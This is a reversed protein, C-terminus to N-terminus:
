RTPLEVYDHSSARGPMPAFPPDTSQPFWDNVTPIPAPSLAFVDSRPTSRNRDNWIRHTPSEDSLSPSEEMGRMEFICEDSQIPSAPEQLASERQHNGPKRKPRRLRTHHEPISRMMERSPAGRIIQRSLAQRIFDTVDEGETDDDQERFRM